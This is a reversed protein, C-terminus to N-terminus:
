QLTCNKNNNSKKEQSIINSFDSITINGSRFGSILYEDDCHLCLTGISLSNLVHYGPDKISNKKLVDQHRSIICIEDKSGCVTRTSNVFLGRVPTHTDKFLKISDLMSDPKRLDFLSLQSLSGVTVINSNFLNIEFNPSGSDLTAECKNSRRDWLKSTQDQSTSIIINSTPADDNTAFDYVPYAHDKFEHLLKHNYIDFVKLTRNDGATAVSTSDLLNVNWVIGQTTPFKDLLNGKEMDWLCVNSDGGSSVLKTGMRQSQFNIAFVVKEHGKELNLYEKIEDDKIKWLKIDGNGLGSALVGSGDNYFDKKQFKILCPTHGVQIETIKPKETFWNRDLTEKYHYSKKYIGQRPEVLHKRIYLERWIHNSNACKYMTHNVLSVKCIDRLSLFELINVMIDTHIEVKFKSFYVIPSEKRMMKNEELEEEFLESKKGRFNTKSHNGWLM